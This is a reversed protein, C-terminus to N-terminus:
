PRGEAREPKWLDIPRAATTAFPLEVQPIGFRQALRAAHGPTPSAVAARRAPPCARVAEAHVASIFQSGILGVSVPTAM